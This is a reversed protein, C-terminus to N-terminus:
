PIMASKKCLEEMEVPEFSITRNWQPTHGIQENNWLLNPPYFTSEM